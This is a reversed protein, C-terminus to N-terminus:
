ATTNTINTENSCFDHTIKVLPLSFPNVNSNGQTHQPFPYFNHVEGGGNRVSNGWRGGM